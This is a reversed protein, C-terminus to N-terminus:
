VRTPRSHTGNGPRSGRKTEPPTLGPRKGRTDRPSEGFLRRYEGSFRGLHNFGCRLAIETVHADSHLLASRARTLREIRLLRIPSLDVIHKCAIQLTRASMGTMRGIAELDMDEDLHDRMAVLARWVSRTRGAPAPHGGPLAPDALAQVLLHLLRTAWLTRVLHHSFAGSRGAAICAEIGGRLIALRDEPIPQHMMGHAPIQLTVGGVEAAAAHLHDLRVQVAAWRSMAWSRYLLESGPAYVQIGHYDARRGNISFPLGDDMALGITLWDVALAGHAMIPLTQRGLDIRVAGLDAHDHELTFTGGELVRLDFVSGSIVAQLAAPDFLSVNLHRHPCGDMHVIKENAFRITM